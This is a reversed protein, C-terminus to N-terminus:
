KGSKARSERERRYALTGDGLIQEATLHREPHRKAVEECAAQKARLSIDGRRKAPYKKRYEASGALLRAAHISEDLQLYRIRAAQGGAGRGFGDRLMLALVLVRPLLVEPANKDQKNFLSIIAQDVREKDTVAFGFDRLFM